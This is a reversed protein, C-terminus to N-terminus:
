NLVLVHCLFRHTFDLQWNRPCGQVACVTVLTVQDWQLHVLFVLLLVSIKREATPGELCQKLSMLKIKPHTFCIDLSM